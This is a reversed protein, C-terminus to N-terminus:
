TKTKFSSDEYCMNKADNVEEEDVIFCGELKWIWGVRGKCSFALLVYVYLEWKSLVYLVKFVFNM